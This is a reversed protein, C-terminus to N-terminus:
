SVDREKLTRNSGQVFSDFLYPGLTHFYELRTQFIGTMSKQSYM